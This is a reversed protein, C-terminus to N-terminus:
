NAAVWVNMGQVPAGVPNLVRVFVREVHEIKIIEGHPNQDAAQTVTVLGVTGLRQDLYWKGSFEGRLWVEFDMSTGDQLECLVHLVQNGRTPVGADGVPRGNDAVADKILRRDAPNDAEPRVLSIPKM